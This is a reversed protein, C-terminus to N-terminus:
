LATFTWVPYGFRNRGRTLHGAQTGKLTVVKVTVGRPGSTLIAYPYADGTQCEVRAGLNSCSWESPKFVAVQRTRIPIFRSVSNALAGSAFGVALLVVALFAIRHRKM